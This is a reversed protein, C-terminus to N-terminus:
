HPGESEVAEQKEEGEENSPRAPVPITESHAVPRIASPLNPHVICDKSKRTTFGQVNTLCFYCDTVHDKPERWVM